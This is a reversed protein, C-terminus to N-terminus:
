GASNDSENHSEDDKKKLQKVINNTYVSGAACLIGQTIGAYLISLIDKATPPDYIGLKYVTALIIGLGGLVIPIWKDKVAASKKMVAGAAYLVPMLIYLEAEIYNTIEM